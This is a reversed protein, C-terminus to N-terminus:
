GRRKGTQELFCPCLESRMELHEAKAKKDRYHRLEFVADQLDSMCAKRFKAQWLSTARRTHPNYAWPFTTPSSWQQSQVLYNAAYNSAVAAIADDVSPQENKPRFLLNPTARLVIELRHQRKTTSGYNRPTNSHVRVRVTEHQDMTNWAACMVGCVCTPSQVLDLHLDPHNPLHLDLIRM